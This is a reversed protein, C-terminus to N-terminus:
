NNEILICIVFVSKGGEYKLKRRVASDDSAGEATRTATKEPTLWSTDKENKTEDLTRSKSTDM